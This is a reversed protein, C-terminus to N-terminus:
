KMDDSGIVITVLDFKRRSCLDLLCAELFILPTKSLGIGGGKHGRWQAVCNSVHAGARGRIGYQSASEVDGRARVFVCGLKDSM